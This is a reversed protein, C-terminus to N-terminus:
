TSNWRNIKYNIICCLAKPKSPALLRIAIGRTFYLNLITPQMSNFKDSFLCCQQICYFWSKKPKWFVFVQWGWPVNNCISTRSREIVCHIRDTVSMIRSEASTSLLFSESRHFEPSQPVNPFLSLILKQYPQVLTKWNNYNPVYNHLLLNTSLTFDHGSHYLRKIQRQRKKKKELRFGFGIEFM